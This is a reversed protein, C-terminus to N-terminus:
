IFELQTKSARGNSKQKRNQWWHAIKTLYSPAKEQVYNTVVNKSLFTLLMRTPWSYGSLLQGAAYGVASRVGKGIIGPDGPSVLKKAFDIALNAPRLSEELAAISDRLKLESEAIELKLQQQARLLDEKNKIKAIM